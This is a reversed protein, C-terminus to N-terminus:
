ELLDLLYPNTKSNNIELRVNGNEDRFMNTLKLDRHVLGAKLHVEHLIDLLDCLDKQYINNVGQKRYPKGVPSVILSMGDESIGLLQTVHKIGFTYLNNLNGREKRVRDAFQPFFKKVVVPQKKWTSQYVVSSGGLGLFEEAQEKETQESKKNVDELKKESKELEEMIEESKKDADM